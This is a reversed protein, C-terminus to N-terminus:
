FQHKDRDVIVSFDVFVMSSGGLAKGRAQLVKRGNAHKQPTSMLLWDYDPNGMIKSILGLLCYM